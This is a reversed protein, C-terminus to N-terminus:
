ESSKYMIRKAPCNVNNLIEFLGSDSSNTSEIIGTTEVSSGNYFVNKITGVDYGGDANKQFNFSAKSNEDSFYCSVM